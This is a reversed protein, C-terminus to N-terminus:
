FKDMQFDEHNIWVVIHFFEGTKSLGVQIKKKDVVWRATWEIYNEVLQEPTVFNEETEGYLQTFYDLVNKWNQRLGGGYQDRTYSDSVFNMLVLKNERYVPKLNFVSGGLNVKYIPNNIMLEEIKVRPDQELKQMTEDQTDGFNVFGFAKKALRKEKERAENMKKAMDKEKKTEAEIKIITERIKAYNDILEHNNYLYIAGLDESDKVIYKIDFTRFPFYFVSMKEFTGYYLDAFGQVFIRTDQPNYIANRKLKIIVTSNFKYTLQSLNSNEYLYSERLFAELRPMVRKNLSYKAMYTYLPSKYMLVTFVIIVLATITIFRFFGKM